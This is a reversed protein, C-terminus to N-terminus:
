EGHGERGGGEGEEGAGGEEAVIASCTLRRRSHAIAPLFISISSSLTMRSPWVIGRVARVFM